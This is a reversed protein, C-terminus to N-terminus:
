IIKRRKITYVIYDYMTLYIKRWKKDPYSFYFILYALLSTFYKILTEKTQLKGFNFYKNLLLLLRLTRVRQRDSTTTLINKRSSARINEVKLDM